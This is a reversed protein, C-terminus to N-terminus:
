KKKNKLLELNKPNSLLAKMSNKIKENDDINEVRKKKKPVHNAAMNILIPTEEVIIQMIAYTPVTVFSGINDKGFGAEFTLAEESIRSSEFTYGALVFLTIPKFTETIDKPLPPEFTVETINTLVSFNIGKKMLYDIVEVIHLMMLEAFEDDNLIENIAVV